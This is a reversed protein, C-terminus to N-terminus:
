TPYEAVLTQLSRQAMTLTVHRRYVASAQEDDVFRSLPLHMDLVAALSASSPVQELIILQPAPIAAGIVIRTHRTQPNHAVVVIAIALGATAVCIRQYDVQWHLKEAPIWIKRLVEGPQLITQRDGTQFMAASVERTSGNLSLLHYTANLAVLAPAFTGAPLALCLNGGITAVNQVKFSALEHVARHLAAIGHWQPPYRVQLLQSLTCTAGIAMGDSAIEVEAWGLAQMDVLTKIQPQAQAFMWTGGALWAWDKQWSQVEELSTPCLYNEVAYLDM